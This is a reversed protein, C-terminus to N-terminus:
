SNLLKDTICIGVINYCKFLKSSLKKQLDDNIKTYKLDYFVSGLKTTKYINKQDETKIFIKDYIENLDKQIFTYLEKKEISRKSIENRKLIRGTFKNGDYEYFKTKDKNDKKFFNYWGYETDTPSSVIVPSGFIKITGDELIEKKDCIALINKWGFNKNERNTRFNICYELSEFNTEEKIQIDELIYKEISDFLKISSNSNSPNWAIYKNNEKKNKISKNTRERIVNKENGCLYLEINRYKGFWFYTSPYNKEFVINLSGELLPFKAKFYNGEIVEFCNKINNDSKNLYNRIDNMISVQKYETEIEESKSNDNGLVAKINGINGSLSSDLSNIETNKLRINNTKYINFDDLFNEMKKPSKYKILGENFNCNGIAEKSKKLSYKYVKYDKSRKEKDFKTNQKNKQNVGCYKEQYKSKFVM